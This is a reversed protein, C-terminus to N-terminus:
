QEREINQEANIMKELPTMDTSNNILTSCDFSLLYPEAVIPSVFAGVGYSFHLAQLLSSSKTLM